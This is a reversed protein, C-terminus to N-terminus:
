SHCIPSKLLSLIDLDLMSALNTKKCGIPRSLKLLHVCKSHFHSSCNPENQLRKGHNNSKYQIIIHYIQSRNPLNALHPFNYGVYSKQATLKDGPCPTKLELRFSCPNKLLGQLQHSPTGQM